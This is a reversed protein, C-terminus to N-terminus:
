GGPILAPIGEAAHEIADTPYPETRSESHLTWYFDNVLVAVPAYRTVVAPTGPPPRGDACERIFDNREKPNSPGCRATVIWNVLQTITHCADHSRNKEIFEREAGSLEFRPSIALGFDALYLRHGDTLINAFHADFHLLGNANMFRVDDLLNREVMACAADVADPAKALQDRLWQTLNQPVYELFLVLSSTAAELAELRRRVAPSGHWREVIWEYDALEPAKPTAPAPGSLVRWHYMLPFGACQGSLVWNTTMDHAALERWASAGPSGLGYQCFTPLDFHNATSRVREPRLELDTLTVRKVFVPVGEVHVLWATGGISAGIFQGADVLDRLRRDSLLSLATAVSGYTHLRGGNM